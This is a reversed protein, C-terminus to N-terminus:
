RTVTIQGRPTEFIVWTGPVTSALTREYLIYSDEPPATEKAMSNAQDKTQMPQCMIAATIRSRATAAWTHM